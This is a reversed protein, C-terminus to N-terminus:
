GALLVAVSVAFAVCSLLRSARMAAMSLSESKMRPSCYQLAQHATATPESRCDAATEGHPAECASTMAQADCGTPSARCFIRDSAAMSRTDLTRRTCTNELVADGPTRRCSPARYAVSAPM